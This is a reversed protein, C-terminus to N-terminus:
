ATRGTGGRDACLGRVLARLASGGAGHTGAAPDLFLDGASREAQVGPGTQFLPGAQLRPVKDFEPDRLRRLLFGRGLRLREREDWVGRFGDDFCVRDGRRLCSMLAWFSDRPTGMPTYDRGVDHFFVVKPSVDRCLWSGLLLLIRRAFRKM